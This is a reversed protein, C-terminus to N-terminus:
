DSASKTNVALSADCNPEDPLTRVVLKVCMVESMRVISQTFCVANLSELTGYRDGSCPVMCIVSRHVMSALTTKLPNM